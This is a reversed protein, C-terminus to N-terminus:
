CHSRMKGALPDPASTAAKAAAAQAERKAMREAKKDAKPDKKKGGEPAAASSKEAPPGPISADHM